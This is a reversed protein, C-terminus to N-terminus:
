DEWEDSDDSDKLSDSNDLNDSNGLSGSSGPDNLDNLNNPESSENLDGSTSPDSENELEDLDLEEEGLEGENFDDSELDDFSQSDDKLRVVLWREDRVDESETEVDEFEPDDALASHVLYREYSNLNQFTISRGTELVSRARKKANEILDAEKETRYQNIDLVIKKDPYEDRFTLRTLYQLAHLSAGRSGIFVSAEKEPITLNVELRQDVEQVVVKIDEKAVGIFFAVKQLYEEITM